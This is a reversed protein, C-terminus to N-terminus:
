RALRATWVVPHAVPVFHSERATDPDRAEYRSAEGCVRLEDGVVAIAWAVSANYRRAPLLANLDVWRDPAGQWLVARNDSGTSGDRTTDKARVYGVQWGRAGAHAGATEFGHPTLDTFSAADGRWLAARACLGKWAIGIQLGDDLGDVESSMVDTPTLDIPEADLAPWWAARGDISGAVATGDTTRWAISGPAAVV